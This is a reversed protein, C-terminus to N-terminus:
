FVATEDAPMEALLKRLAALREERQEDTPGLVPRPRRYVLGGRRLWTRVTERGVEVRYLKRMLVAVAECCWRSRLFGFDRPAKQTVWEVALKLWSADLRPRRGPRHGAVAQVGEAHFRKVWRDITRSSCYLLSAVTIWTHGEGLLLLIHSRFRVDPDPCGRYLDLLATRQESTLDLSRKM